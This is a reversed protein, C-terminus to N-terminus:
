SDKSSSNVYWVSSSGSANKIILYCIEYENLM